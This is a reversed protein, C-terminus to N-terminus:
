RRYRRSRQCQQRLDEEVSPQLNPITGGLGRKGWEVRALAACPQGDRVRLDLGEMFAAIAAYRHHPEDARVALVFLSDDWDAAASLRGHAELRDAARTYAEIGLSVLDRHTAMGLSRDRARARRVALVALDIRGSDLHRRVRELYLKGIQAHYQADWAAVPGMTELWGIEQDYQKRHHFWMAGGVAVMQIGVAGVLIVGVLILVAKM